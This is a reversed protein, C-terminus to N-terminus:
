QKLWELYAKIQKEFGREAPEYLVEEKLEDPLYTQEVWAKPEDHPYQYSKGYGVSKSLSTKSSRLDLPIPLTGHTEVLEQARKLGMYSRNSKPASALYTTVQALTIAGEPLGIMEVAQAGNVAVALARPDANGIDESALIILRRAIFTPSEGGKIMRALYYLAANADSGRVSKIFASIVDYHHASAKDYGIFSAGRVLELGEERLPWHSLPDASNEQTSDLKTLDLNAKLHTSSQVRYISILIDLINYLKRADGDAWDFLTAQLETAVLQNLTLSELSLAKQALEQLHKNTLREFVLLRTRSLLAHNIEYSPNETTAGVLILEGKEVFPLLVDQQAKNFRHIEDVFLITQKGDARRRVRAAEGIERLRKAGSEVANEAIYFADLEQSLTQAFTTKGTGPPGWIIVSPIRGSKLLKYFVSHPGISKEQGIIDQVKKPRLREALPTGTLNELPIQTFLDM